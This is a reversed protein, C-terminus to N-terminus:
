RSRRVASFEIKVTVDDDGFVGNINSVDLVIRDGSRLKQSPFVPTWGLQTVPVLDGGTMSYGSPFQLSITPESTTTADPETSVIPRWKKLVVDDAGPVIIINGQSSENPGLTISPSFFTLSMDLLDGCQNSLQLENANINANACLYRWRDALVEMPSDVLFSQIRKEFDGKKSNPYGVLCSMEPESRGCDDVRVAYLLYGWFQIDVTGADAAVGSIEVAIRGGRGILQHANLALGTGATGAPFNAGTLVQSFTASSSFYRGNPWKVRYPTATQAMYGCCVFATNSNNNIKSTFPQPPLGGEGSAPYIASFPIIRFLPVFLHGPPPVFQGCANVVLDQTEVPVLKM